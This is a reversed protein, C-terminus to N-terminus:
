FCLIDNFFVLTYQDVDSGLVIGLNSLQRLALVLALHYGQLSLMQKPSLGYILDFKRM